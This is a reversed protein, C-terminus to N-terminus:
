QLAMVLRRCGDGDVLQRGVKSMKSRLFENGILERLAASIDAQSGAWSSGLNVVAAAQELSAAIPSQNEALALVMSPLGMYAMEWCTSGAASIALDAWAMVEPVNSANYELHIGLDSNHTAKTEGEFHPNNAGVLVVVELGNVGVKQLAAIAKSTVNEVDSGGFTVLIHRANAAIQRQWSYWPRFERRLLVYRTGLLLRTYPERSAYFAETAHLNQNVVIDAYYHSAHGYDDVCLLRLGAAKIERQYTASFQYGDLLLWDTRLQRALSTTQEADAQSGATARVRSIGIGEYALRAELASAPEAMAFQATGGSEQWSQALALCRMVHGTGMHASADARILLKGKSAKM